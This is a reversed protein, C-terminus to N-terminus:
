CKSRPWDEQQWSMFGKNKKGINYISGSLLNVDDVYTYVPLHYLKL